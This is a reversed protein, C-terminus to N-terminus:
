RCDPRRTGDGDPMAREECGTRIAFVAVHPVGEAQQVFGARLNDNVTVVMGVFAEGWLSGIAESVWGIANPLKRDYRHRAEYIM